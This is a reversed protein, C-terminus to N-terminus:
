QCNNNNYVCCCSADDDHTISEYYVHHSHSHGINDGRVIASIKEKTSQRHHQHHQEVTLCCHCVVEAENSMAMTNESTIHTVDAVM